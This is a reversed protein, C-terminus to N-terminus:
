ASKGFCFFFSSSLRSPPSHSARAVPSISFREFFVAEWDWEAKFLLTSYQTPQRYGSFFWCACCPDWEYPPGWGRWFPGWMREGGDERKWPLLVWSGVFFLLYIYIFLYFPFAFLFLQIYTGMAMVGVAVYLVKTLSLSLYRWEWERVM